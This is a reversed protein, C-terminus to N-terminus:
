AHEIAPGNILDVPLAEWCPPHTAALRLVTDDVGTDLTKDEVAQCPYKERPWCSPPTRRRERVKGSGKLLDPVEIGAMKELRAVQMYFPQGGYREKGGEM